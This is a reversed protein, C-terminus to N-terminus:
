HGGPMIAYVRVGETSAVALFRGDASFSLGSIPSSAAQFAGSQGGDRTMILVSGDTQGFAFLDTSSLALAQPTGPLSLRTVESVQLTKPDIVNLITQNRGLENQLYYITGDFTMLLPKYLFNDKKQYVTEGTTKDVVTITFTNEKERATFVILKTNEAFGQPQGKVSEEPLKKGKKYLDSGTGLNMLAWEGTRNIAGVRYPGTLIVALGSRDVLSTNNKELQEALVTGDTAFLLKEPDKFCNSEGTLLKLWCASHPSNVLLLGDSVFRFAPYDFSGTELEGLSSPLPLAAGWLWALADPSASESTEFSLAEGSEINWKGTEVTASTRYTNWRLAYGALTDDEEFGIQWIRADANSPPVNIERLLQLKDVSYVRMKTPMGIALLSGDMSFAFPTDERPLLLNAPTKWNGVDYFLMEQGGHIVFRAGDATFSIGNVPRDYGLVQLKSELDIVRLTGAGAKFALLSDSPSIAISAENRIGQFGKEGPLALLLTAQGDQIAYVQAEWSGAHRAMVAVRSGDHNTSICSECPISATFIEPWYGLVQGLRDFMFLGVSSSLFLRQRDGSIASHQPSASLANFVVGMQPMNEVTIQEFGMDILPTGQAAPYPSKRTPRPTQSPTQTPTASPLPSPTTTATETPNLTQTPAQPTVPLTASVIFSQNAPLTVAVNAPIVIPGACASLLVFLFLNVIAIRIKM